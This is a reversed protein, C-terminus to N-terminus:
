RRHPRRPRNRGGLHPLLHRRSRAWRSPRNWIPGVRPEHHNAEMRHPLLRLGCPDSTTRGTLAAAVMSHPITQLNLRSIMAAHLGAAPGCNPESRVCILTRVGVDPCQRAPPSALIGIFSPQDKLPPPDISALEGRVSPISIPNTVVTNPFTILLHLAIRDFPLVVNWLHKPNMMWRM